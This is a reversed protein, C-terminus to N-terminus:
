AVLVDLEEGLQRHLQKATWQAHARWNADNEYQNPNFWGEQKGHEVAACIGGRKDTPEPQSPGGFVRLKLGFFRM